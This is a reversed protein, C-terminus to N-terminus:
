DEGLRQNQKLHNSLVALSSAMNENQVLVGKPATLFVPAFNWIAKVGSEVLMDCVKQAESAPVSIIGIPVHLRQCLNKLKSLPMVRRGNYIRGVISSSIDFAVSIELGHNRFGEYNHLARGLNGMGVLVAHTTNDHGLYTQIAHLLQKKNYGTKPRGGSCVAALDKRVQVDNLGIGSAIGTASINEIEDPLAKLYDTYVPLRRITQLSIAEKQMM